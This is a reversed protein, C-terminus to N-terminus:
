ELKYFQRIIFRRIIIGDHTTAAASVRIAGYVGAQVPFAFGGAKRHLGLIIDDRTTDVALTDGLAVAAAERPLISRNGVSDWSATYTGAGSNTGIDRADTDSTLLSGQWLSSGEGTALEFPWTGVASSNGGHWAGFEAICAISDPALWGSVAGPMGNELAWKADVEMGLKFPGTTDVQASDLYFVWGKQVYAFLTDDNVLSRYLVSTAVGAGTTVSDWRVVTETVFYRADTTPALFLVAVSAIILSKIANM